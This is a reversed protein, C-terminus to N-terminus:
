ETIEKSTNLIINKRRYVSFVIALSLMDIILEQKGCSVFPIEFDSRIGLNLNMLICFISRFIFSSAIGIILLRGYSDKIKTTDYILKISYALIAIIMGITLIIGYNALMAIVPFVENETNFISYEISNTTEIKGFLKASNVVEQQLIGQWGEGNPAIQPNFNAILRTITREFTNTLGLNVLGILLLVILSIGTIKWLRKIYKKKKSEIVKFVVISFYVLALVISASKTRCNWLLILSLISLTIIKVLNININHKEFYEIKIKSKNNINEIFGIFAIIYLPLM